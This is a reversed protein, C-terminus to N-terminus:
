TLKIGYNEEGAKVAAYYQERGQKANDGTLFLKCFPLNNTYYNANNGDAYYANKLLDNLHNIKLV